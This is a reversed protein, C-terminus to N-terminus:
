AEFIFNTKLDMSSSLRLGAQCCIGIAPQCNRFSNCEVQQPDSARHDESRPAARVLSPLTGLGTGKEAWVGLQQSGQLDMDSEGKIGGARLAIERGSV